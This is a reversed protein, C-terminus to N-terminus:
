SLRCIIRKHPIARGTFITMLIGFSLSGGEPTQVKFTSEKLATLEDITPKVMILRYGETQGVETISYCLDPFIEVIQAIFILIYSVLGGPIFSIHCSFILRDRKRAKEKGPRRNNNGIAIKQPNDTSL